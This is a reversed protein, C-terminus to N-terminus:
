RFYYFNIIYPNATSLPLVSTLRFTDKGVITVAIGDKRALRQTETGIQKTEIYAVTIEPSIGVLTYDRTYVNTDTNQLVYRKFLTLQRDTLDVVNKGDADWAQLGQPVDIEKARHHRLMLLAYIFILVITITVVM